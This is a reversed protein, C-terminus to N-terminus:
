RTGSPRRRTPVRDLRAGLDFHDIVAQRNGRSRHARFRHLWRELLAQCADASPPAPHLGNPTIPRPAQRPVSEVAVPGPVPLLDAVPAPNPPRSKVPVGNRYIVAPATVKPASSPTSRRSTTKPAERPPATGLPTLSFPSVTATAGDAEIVVGGKGSAEYAVIRVTGRLLTKQGAYTALSGLRFRGQERLKKDTYSPETQMIPNISRDAASPM